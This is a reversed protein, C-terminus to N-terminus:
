VTRNNYRLSLAMHITNYSHYRVYFSKCNYCQNWLESGDVNWTVYIFSFQNLQLIYYHEPMNDCQTTLFELLLM